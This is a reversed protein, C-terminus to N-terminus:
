TLQAQNTRGNERSAFVMDRMEGRPTRSCPLSGGLGRRDLLRVVRRAISSTVRGVEADSPPPVRRFRLRQRDDLYYVGDLVLSHFHVNLNVAGGFRQVFTVAGCRAKRIGAYARERRRLSAYVARVFIGLVDRVLRSDYALRYRFAIPLSLVWQRVRAKPLVRDM